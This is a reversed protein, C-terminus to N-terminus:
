FYVEDQVLSITKHRQILHLFAQNGDSTIAIESLRFRLLIALIDPLLNPGTELTKSLSPYGPSYLSADFAIRWKIEENTINKVAYHPLYFLRVENQTDELIDEVQKKDIYDQM